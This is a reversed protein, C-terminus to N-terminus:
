CRLPCCCAPLPAGTFKLPHVHIPKQTRSPRDHWIQDVLNEAPFVLELGRSKVSQSLAKGSGYDQLAADVGIKSDKPLQADVLDAISQIMLHTSKRVELLWENWNKVGASGVKELTWNSDLQKAAQVFYRSDTFLHAETPTVIATGASGTFSRFIYPYDAIPEFPSLLTPPRVQLHLGAARRMRRGM